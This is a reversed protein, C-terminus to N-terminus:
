DGLALSFAFFGLFVIVYLSGLVILAINTPPSQKKVLGIIAFILTTIMCIISLFYAIETLIFVPTGAGAGDSNFIFIWSLGVLVASLLSLRTYKEDKKNKMVLNYVV